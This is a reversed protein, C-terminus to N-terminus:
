DGEYPGLFNVHSDIWDVMRVFLIIYRQREELLLTEYVIIFIM